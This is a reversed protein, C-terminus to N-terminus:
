PGLNKQCFELKERVHPDDPLIEAARKYVERAEAWKGAKM